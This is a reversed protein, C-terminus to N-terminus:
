EGTLVQVPDLTAARLAPVGCAAVVVMLLLLPTLAFTWPDYLAVGYLLGAMPRVALGAAAGGVAIGAAAVQLGPGLVTGLLHRREAGLSHRIGLERIRQSVGEAMVGYTGVAALTLAVGGLVLLVWGAARRQWENRALRNDFSALDFVSQEPDVDQVAQEIQRALSAAPVRTRLVFFTDGTVWQQQSLYLDMGPAGLLRESQVDGVVGVVTWWPQEDEPKGLKLRVGLPDRDPWLARALRRSVVAVPLTGERDQPTLTRGALRPIGLTEFYGPSVSQLHVFPNREQESAGQGEVTVVRKTNEDLGALPLNHNAAAGEVGPLAALRELAARYFPALQDLSSYTRWPPDARFTVLHSPNFGVPVRELSMLSRVMLTAGVALLMAVAVEAGLLLARLRRHGRTGSSGRASGQLADALQGRSALLAPVLGTGIGVLVALTTTLALVPGDIHIEMWRPLEVVLLARLGRVSLEALALGALAGLGALVLSETLLRRVLRGRGAGLVACLAFTRQRALARVLLLHVVNACAILLVCAVAAQLLLLYRGVPGVLAERLGLLHFSVGRNTEPFREAWRASWSALEAEAQARSVGPRLRVLLSHRRAELGHFETAQRYIEVGPPYEAGPALVGTVTYPTADLTVTRGVIAPDGGLEQQWFRHSLVVQYQRVFDGEPPYPGGQLFPVGLVAFFGSSTIASAVSRPAGDGTLNYQTRYFTAAGSFSTATAMLEQAERQAVRGAEGGKHPEVLMLQHPEPFPVPRLLLAHVFSFIACNAGIGLALAIVVLLTFLPSRRLGRLTFFLDQLLDRM